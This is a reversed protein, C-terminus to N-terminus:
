AGTPAAGLGAEVGIRIADASSAAGLRRLLAARHMKVTKEDIGLRAAVQKNRQGAVIQELVQRQRGTLGTVLAAARERRPEERAQAAGVDMQSGVFYAVSGDDRLLPAVMVANRFASGDRRYNTLEVLVPRAGAIAERMLAQRDAETAAGALFRCNCGVAEERRYGTLACFAANVAVIPNDPLSPDTVITAIPTADISAFLDAFEGSQGGRDGASDM